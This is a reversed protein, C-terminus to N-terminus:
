KNLLTASLKVLSGPDNKNVKTAAFTESALLMLGLIMGHKQM